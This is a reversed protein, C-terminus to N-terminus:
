RFQLEFNKYGKQKYIKTYLKILGAKIEEVDDGWFGDSLRAEIHEAPIPLILKEAGVKARKNKTAKEMTNQTIYGTTITVFNTSKIFSVFVTGANTETFAAYTNQGDKFITKSKQLAQQIAVHM